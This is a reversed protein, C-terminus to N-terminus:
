RRGVGLARQSKNFFRRFVPSNQFCRQRQTYVHKTFVRYSAVDWILKQEIGYLRYNEDSLYKTLLIKPRIENEYRM